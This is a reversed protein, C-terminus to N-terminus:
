YKKIDNVKAAKILILRRAGILHQMVQLFFLRIQTFPPVIVNTRHAQLPSPIQLIDKSSVRGGTFYREERLLFVYYELLIHQDKKDSYRNTSKTKIESLVCRTM